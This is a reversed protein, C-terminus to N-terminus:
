RRNTTASARITGPRRLSSTVTVANVKAWAIVSESAVKPTRWM